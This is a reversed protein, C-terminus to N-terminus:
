GRYYRNPVFPMASVVMPVPKGRVIAIVTSGVKILPRTVVGDIPATLIVTKEETAQVQGSLKIVSSLSERKVLTTTTKLSSAGSPSELNGPTTNASTAPGSWPSCGLSGLVVISVSLWIFKARM